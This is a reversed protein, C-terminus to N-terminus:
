IFGIDNIYLMMICLPVLVVYLGWCLSLPLTYYWEILLLYTM